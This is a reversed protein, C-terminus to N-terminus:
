ANLTPEAARRRYWGRTTPRHSDAGRHDPRARLAHAVTPVTMAVRRRLGRAALLEDADAGAEGLFRLCIGPAAQAVRAALRPILAEALVDNCQLTFTRALTGPDFGAARHFLVPGPM